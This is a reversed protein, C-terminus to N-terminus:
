NGLKYCRDLCTSREQVPTVRVQIQLLVMRQLLPPEWPWPPELRFMCRHGQPQDHGPSLRDPVADRQAPCPLAFALQLPACVPVSRLLPASGTWCTPVSVRIHGLWSDPLDLGAGKQAPYHLAFAPQSPKCAPLSHLLLSTVVRSLRLVLAMRQARSQLKEM